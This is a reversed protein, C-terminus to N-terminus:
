SKLANVVLESILKKETRMFARMTKSIEKYFMSKKHSEIKECLSFIWDLESMFVKQNKLENIMEDKKGEIANKCSEAMFYMEVSIHDAPEEFNLTYGMEVYKKAVRSTTKGYPNEGEYSSQYLSISDGFPNIFLESFESKVSEEFEKSTKYKKAFRKLGKLFPIEKDGVLDNILEKPPPELFLTGFLSYIAKRGELIKNLENM